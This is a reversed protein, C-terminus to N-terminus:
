PATTRASSFWFAAQLLTWSLRRGSAATVVLPVFTTITPVGRRPSVDRPDPVTASTYSVAVRWHDGAVSLSGRRLATATATPSCIRNAPPTPGSPALATTSM